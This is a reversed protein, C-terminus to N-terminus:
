IGEMMIEYIIKILAGITVYHYQPLDDIKDKLTKINVLYTQGFSKMLGRRTEETLKTTDIENEKIKEM